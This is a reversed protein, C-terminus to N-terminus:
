HFLNKIKTRQRRSSKAFIQLYNKHLSLSFGSESIM